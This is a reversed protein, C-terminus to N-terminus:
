PQSNISFSSHSTPKFRLSAIVLTAQHVTDIALSLVAYRSFNKGLAGADARLRSVLFSVMASSDLEGKWLTVPLSTATSIYLTEDVQICLGGSRRGRERERERLFVAFAIKRQIMDLRGTCAINEKATNM